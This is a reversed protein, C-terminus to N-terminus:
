GPKTTQTSWSLPFMAECGRQRTLGTRQRGQAARQGDSQQAFDGDGGATGVVVLKQPKIFDVGRTAQVPGPLARPQLYPPVMEGCPGLCGVAFCSSSPSGVDPAPLMAPGQIM